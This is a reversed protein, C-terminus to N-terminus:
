ALGKMYTARPLATYGPAALGLKHQSKIVPDDISNPSSAEQSVHTEVNLRESPCLRGELKPVGEPIGFQLERRWNM